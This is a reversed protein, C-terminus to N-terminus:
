AAVHDPTLGVLQAGLRVAGDPDAAYGDAGLQVALESSGAFARGGVLIRVADGRNGSRVTQITSKVADLHVSGFLISTEIEPAAVKLEMVWDPRFSGVISHQDWEYERLTSVVAPIVDSDKLEIYAGLQEDRCLAIAEDFTPVHEDDGLDIAQLEALTSRHVMWVLGDADTLYSDHMLVVQGDLAAIAIEIVVIVDVLFVEAHELLAHATVAHRKLRAQAETGVEVVVAVNVGAIGGGEPGAHAPGTDGSGGGADGAM